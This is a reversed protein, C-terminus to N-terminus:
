PVFPYPVPRGGALPLVLTAHGPVPVAGDQTRLGTDVEVYGLGDKEHTDTVIAFFTLTTGPHVMARQTLMVRYLWGDPSALNFLLQYVFAQSFHGSLLAGPQGEQEISYKEDYHNRRMTETAICWRHMVPITLLQSREPLRMEVKIDEFRPMATLAPPLDAVSVSNTPTERRAPRPAGPPPLRRAVRSFHEIAMVEGRQNTFTTDSKAIAFKGNRGTKEFVDIYKKVASIIDGTKPLQLYEIDDGGHGAWVGEPWPISEQSTEASDMGSPEENIGLLRVGDPEGMDKRYGGIARLVLSAPGCGVGFRTKEAYEKDYWLRNDDMTSLVYRRIDGRSVEDFASRSPTQRGMMARVEPTVLVDDTTTM